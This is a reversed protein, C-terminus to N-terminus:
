SPGCPGAAGRHDSESSGTSVGCEDHISISPKFFMQSSPEVMSIRVSPVRYTGGEEFFQKPAPLHVSKVISQLSPEARPASSSPKKVYQSIQPTGSCVQPSVQCNRVGVEPTPESTRELSGRELGAVPGSNACIRGCEPLVYAAEELGERELGAVPSPNACTTGCEPLVKEENMTDPPSARPLSAGTPLGGKGKKAEQRAQWVKCTRFDHSFPLKKKRCAFCLNLGKRPVQPEVEEKLPVRGPLGSPRPTEM